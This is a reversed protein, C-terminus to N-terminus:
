SSRRTKPDHMRNGMVVAWAMVTVLAILGSFVFLV